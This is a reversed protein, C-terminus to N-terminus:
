EEPIVNLVAFEGHHILAAQNYARAAEIASSFYGLHFDKGNRQIRAHWRNRNTVRSVGKYGSTNRKGKEKNCSNDSNTALRLNCQRCDLGNGNIHDIMEAKSISRGLARQMVVRHLYISTGEINLRAYRLDGTKLLGWKIELLDKNTEDIIAFYGQPLPVQIVLSDSSHETM